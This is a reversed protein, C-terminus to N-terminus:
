AVIYRIYSRSLIQVGTKLSKRGVCVAERIKSHQIWFAAWAFHRSPRIDLVAKGEVMVALSITHLCKSM